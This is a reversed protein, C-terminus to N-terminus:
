PPCTAFDCRCRYPSCQFTKISCPNCSDACNQELTDCDVPCSGSCSHPVGDCTVHGVEGVSCNFDVASCNSSSLNSSCSITGGGVCNATATCLSKGQIPPRKAMPVPVPTGLSALFASLSPGGHPVSAAAAPSVLFGFVVLSISVGLVIKKM